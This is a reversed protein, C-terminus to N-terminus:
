NISSRDNQPLHVTQVHIVMDHINVCAFNCINCQYAHNESKEVLFSALSAQAYSTREKLEGHLADIHSKLRTENALCKQCYQCRLSKPPPLHTKMHDKVDQRRRYSNKCVDCKFPMLHSHSREHMRLDCSAIYKLGCTKCEFCKQKHQRVQHDVVDNKSKFDSKCFKCKYFKEKHKLMHQVLKSAMFFQEDCVNCTKLLKKDAESIVGHLQFKHYRMAYSDNFRKDCVFCQPYHNLKHVRKKHQQM